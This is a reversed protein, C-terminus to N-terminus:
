KWGELGHGRIGGKGVGGRLSRDQNHVVLFEENEGELLHKLAFAIAGERCEVRHIGQLVELLFSEGHHEGVLVHRRFVAQLKQCLHLRDLGVGSAHQHGAHEIQGSDDLRDVFPFDIAEDHLGAHALIQERRQLVRHLPIFQDALVGHELGGCLGHVALELIQVVRERSLHRALRFLVGLEGPQVLRQLLVELTGHLQAQLRHLGKGSGRRTRM